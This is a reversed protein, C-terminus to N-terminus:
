RTDYTHGRFSPEKNTEYSAAVFVVGVSSSVYSVIDEVSDTQSLDLVVLMSALSLVGILIVVFISAFELLPVGATLGDAVSSWGNSLIQADTTFLVWDTSLGTQVVEVAVFTLTGIASSSRVATVAYVLVSDLTEPSLVSSLLSYPVTTTTRLGDDIQAQVFGANTTGVSIEVSSLVGDTIAQYLPGTVHDNWQSYREVTPQRDPSNDGLATTADHVGAFSAGDHTPAATATNVITFVSIVVIAALFVTRLKSTTSM